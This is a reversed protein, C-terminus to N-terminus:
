GPLLEYKYESYNHVTVRYTISQGATGSITSIVNTPWMYGHDIETATGGEVLVVSTVIVGEPEPSFSVTGNIVLTDALQAYGVSIFLFMLSFAISFLRKGWKTM